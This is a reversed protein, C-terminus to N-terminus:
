RLKLLYYGKKKGSLYYGKSVQPNRHWITSDTRVLSNTFNWKSSLYDKIAFIFTVNVWKVRLFMSSYLLCPMFLALNTRKNEGTIGVHVFVM